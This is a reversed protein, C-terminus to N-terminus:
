VDQATPNALTACLQEFARSEILRVSFTGSDLGFLDASLDVGSTEYSLFNFAEARLTVIDSFGGLPDTPNLLLANRQATPLNWNLLACFEAIRDHGSQEVRFVSAQSISDTVSPLVAVSRPLPQPPAVVARRTAGLVNARKLLAALETVGSTISGVVKRAM